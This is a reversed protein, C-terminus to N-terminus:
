QKGYQAALYDVIGKADEASIPAGFANIMKKVSGEWGARDLFRSNLQIYDLSHCMVCNTTVTDRGAGERLSIEGEDAGAALTLSIGTALSLVLIPTKM